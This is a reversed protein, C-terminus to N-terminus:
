GREPAPPPPPPPPPPAPCMDAALIVSGDACTQTAPPPPPPPPPAAEMMPPAVTPSGLSVRFGASVGHSNLGKRFRGEYGAFLAATRSINFNLGADADFGSRGYGAGEVTFASASNGNYFATVDNNRSKLDYRYALRGYPSITATPSSSLDFGILADTRKADIRSVTLSLAGAGTETFGKIRGNSYDIGVFPRLKMGGLDANYGVTGILKFLNGSFSADATRVISTVAITRSADYKGHAYAVQLDADFAGAAYDVYGGVQWSNGRGDSTGARYDFKDRSYGAAIGFTLGDNRFDVGLAGGHIKQDTGFFSDRNKGKGRSGYARGWISPGDVHSPTGHMQLAVQRTFLEAQDLLGLAYAAYPEPNTQAFFSQAQLATMNDVAIVVTAADGTAGTVLAQFGAAAALQNPTAGAGLGAAYSTRSITLRYVQGGVVSVIGTPTFTIFPSIVNGTVPSGAVGNLSTGSFAGSITTARVVDYTSGAVYLGTPATLALNGALAAAGTVLLQDYGTGVVASPSVDVALTGVATQTFPGTIRLIGATGVTGPNITGSNSVAGVIIGTGTLLGGNNVAGTITGNVILNSTAASVVAGTLAGGTAVNLTAGASVGAPTTYTGTVNVAGGNVLLTNSLTGTGALTLAGTGAKILTTGALTGTLSTSTNNGGATLTFAATDVAGAGAISGVTENASLLFTAGSAVTVASLDGIGTGAAVLTGGTINTAGTYTNNGSLTVSGTNLKTLTGTGSLNGAYTGTTTQDFVLAANNVIPGQLSTTTGTLTGASVTTGGSYTNAGTLTLNGIGTKTLAGAGSIIGSLTTAADAQVTAGGAFIVATNALSLAATTQLTGGAFIFSGTGINTASGIAITGGLFTIPGTHGTNNNSLTLVGAGDKFLGGAGTLQGAYTGNTPQTFLLNGTADIAINGQLSVSNGELTGLTVTTGGSYTNAGTLTFRGSGQKTLSGVGSIVGAYATNSGQGTTLGANLVVSGGNGALSGITEATDIQLTGSTTATSNVIVEGTDAIAAGGSLALVGNTVTTTGAYTNAGSLTQTATGTKVLGNAGSIVGGFNAGSQTNLTLNGGSLTVSGSGFLNGITEAAAVDLTGASLITVVGVDSLAAGGTVRLTGGFVFTGGTYANAGSFTTVAVGAPNNIGSGLFVFGTGSMNGAYTGAAGNNFVLAANNVITNSGLFSANSTELFNNLGNINIKDALVIPAALVWGGNVNMVDFNTVAGITGGGAGLNITNLSSAAATLTGSPFTTGSVANFVNTTGGGMNVNGTITGTNTIVDNGAGLTIAGTLTGSNVITTDGVSNIAGVISGTNNINFAGGASSVAGVIGGGVANNFNNLVNTQGTAASSFNVAGTIVGTATSANSVTSGGGVAIATTATIGGENNVASVTGTSLTGSVTATPIVNITLGNIASGNFGDPDSTSCTVTTGAANPLCDAMAASPLIFAGVGVLTTGIM